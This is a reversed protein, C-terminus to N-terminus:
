ILNPTVEISLEPNTLFVKYGHDALKSINENKKHKSATTGFAGRQCDLLKWPIQESVTGYRILENGIVVTKLNNNKFQNFFDPSEVPIENQSNNIEETIISTGVKALRNDPVPTVYPDNTTIFNSLTHVGLMINNEKAIAVCKKLGDWGNPFQKNLDFHGWNKFPGPHYLYRLGSKKTIDLSIPLLLQPRRKVGNM